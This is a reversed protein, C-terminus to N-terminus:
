WELTKKLELYDKDAKLFPYLLRDLYQTYQEEMDKARNHVLASPIDWLAQIVFKEKDWVDSWAGTYIHCLEHLILRAYNNVKSNDWTNTNFCVKASLHTYDKKAVTADYDESVWNDYEVEFVWWGLWIWCSIFEFLIGIKEKTTYSVKKKM